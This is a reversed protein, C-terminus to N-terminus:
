FWECFNLELVCIQCRAADDETGKSCTWKGDVLTISHQRSRVALYEMSTIRAGNLFQVFQWNTVPTRGVYFASLEVVHEPREDPNEGDNCGMTFEGAPIFIFQGFGPGLVETRKGDARASSSFDAGLARGASQPLDPRQTIWWCVILIAL